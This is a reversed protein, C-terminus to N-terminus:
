PQVDRTYGGTRTVTVKFARGGDKPGEDTISDISALFRYRTDGTVVGTPYYRFARIEGSALATWLHGQGAPSAGDAIIEFSFQASSWTVVHEENGASDNSEVNAKKLTGTFSPSNVREVDVYTATTYDSSAANSVAVEAKRGATPGTSAM